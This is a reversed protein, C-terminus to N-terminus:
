NVSNQIIGGIANFVNTVVITLAPMSAVAAVAVMGAALAYEVM